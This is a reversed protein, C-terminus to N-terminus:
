EPLGNLLYMSQIITTARGIPGFWKEYIPIVARSRYLGALARDVALRFDPDGRRLMLGYPEFSFYEELLNLKSVDRSNAALGFLIVRDSAYADFAGSDLGALGEQHDKVNLVKVGTVGNARFWDALAKETTTGPAVAVRKGPLDRVGKIGSALTALLSGGDVFTTLSFDVDAQRSLTHTTSGCELDVSGGTVASIRGEPTVKVWKIELKAIGLNQQIAGVVQRCLDVSYGTPSQDAGVFSFPVSSERYGITISGTDKIKKITGVPDAALAPGALLLVLSVAFISSKM